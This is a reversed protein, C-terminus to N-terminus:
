IPSEFENQIYTKIAPALAQVAGYVKPHAEFIKMLSDNFTWMPNPRCKNFAGARYFYAINFTGAMVTNGAVGTWGEKTMKDECKDMFSGFTTCLKDEAAKVAKADAGAGVIGQMLGLMDNCTDMIYDNWHACKPDMTYLGFRVALMRLIANTEQYRKGDLIVHPLGGSKYPAKGKMEAGWEAETHAVSKFPQGVYAMM